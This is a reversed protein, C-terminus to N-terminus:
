GHAIDVTRHMAGQFLDSVWTAQMVSVPCIVLVRKIAGIKLLYDAAWIMSMTKGTGQENFVYARRNLTLFAATQKQHTFPERNGSWKYKSIIPSPVNKVRLNKLVQM